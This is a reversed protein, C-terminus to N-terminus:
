ELQGASIRPQNALDNFQQINKFNNQELLTRVQEAQNYGHELMLWGHPSLFGHAHHIIHRIDNLGDAGATLASLPEFRVDGQLLHPDNEEIYPPNSVIIDFVQKEVPVFWNGKLLTLNDLKLSIQNLRAIKLSAASQEVATVESLPREYALALAIAGTGTGLDLINNRSDAPIKELAQEVLCETEPRPILTDATVKLDFEWFSRSGTIHAIPEGKIRRQLLDNFQQTQSDNINKEPWTHLYTRNCGLTHCLLIEVDVQISDSYDTLQTKAHTLTQKINM